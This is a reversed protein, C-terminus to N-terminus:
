GGVWICLIVKVSKCLDFICKIYVASVCGVPVTEDAKRTSKSLHVSQGRIVKFFPLNFYMMTGM